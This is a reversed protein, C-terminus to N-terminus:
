IDAETATNKKLGESILLALTAFFIFAGIALFILAKELSHHVVEVKCTRSWGSDGSVYRLRYYYSGNRKGSLTSASDKGLYLTRVNKFDPHESEQLEIELDKDKEWSLIYYGANSSINYETFVPAASIASSAFLLFFFAAFVINVSRPMTFLKKVRVANFFLIWSNYFYSQLM